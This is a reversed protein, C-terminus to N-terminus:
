GEAEAGERSGEDWGQSLGRSGVESADLQDPSARPGGRAVFVNIQTVDAGRRRKSGGVVVGGPCFLVDYGVVRHAWVPLPPRKSHVAKM